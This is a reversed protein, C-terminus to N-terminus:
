ILKCYKVSTSSATSICVCVNDVKYELLNACLKNYDLM